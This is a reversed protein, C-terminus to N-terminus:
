CSADDLLARVTSILEQERVPKYLRPADAFRGRLEEHEHDASVFAFPIGAEKLKDALPWVIAKGVNIDLLAACAHEAELLDFADPLTPAPGIVRLDAGEVMQSLDWAIFAEDEVILVSDRDCQM